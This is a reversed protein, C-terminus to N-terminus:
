ISTRRCIPNNKRGILRAIKYFANIKILAKKQPRNKAKKKPAKKQAVVAVV